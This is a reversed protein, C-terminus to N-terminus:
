QHPASQLAVVAARTHAPQAAALRAAASQGVGVGLARQQADLLLQLPQLRTLPVAVCQPLM